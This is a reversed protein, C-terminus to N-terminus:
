EMLACDCADLYALFVLKFDPNRMTDVNIKLRNFCTEVKFDVRVDDSTNISISIPSKTYVYGTILIVLKKLENNSLDNLMSQIYKKMDSFDETVPPYTQISINKLVAVRDYELEGGLACYLDWMSMNRISDNNRLMGRVILTLIHHEEASIDCEIGLRNLVFDELSNYGTCLSTFQDANMRYILDLNCMYKHEAPDLHHHFPALQNIHVTQHICRYLCYIFSMSFHGSLHLSMNILHELLRGFYFANDKTTWFPHSINIAYRGNCVMLLETKVYEIINHLMSRKVGDGSAIVEDDLFLRMTFIASFNREVCATMYQSFVDQEVNIPLIYENYIRKHYSLNHSFNLVVEGESTIRYLLNHAFRFFALSSYHVELPNVFSYKYCVFLGWPLLDIEKVSEMPVPPAFDSTISSLTYWHNCYKFVFVSPYLHTDTILLPNLEVSDISLVCSKHDYMVIVNYHSIIIDLGKFHIIETISDIIEKCEIYGVNIFAAENKSANFWWLYNVGDLIYLNSNGSTKTMDYFWIKVIGACDIFIPSLNYELGELSDEDSDETTPSYKYFTEDILILHLTRVNYIRVFALNLPLRITTNCSDRFYQFDEDSSEIWSDRMKPNCIIRGNCYIDSTTRNTAMMHSYSNHISDFKAEIDYFVNNATVSYLHDTCLIFAVNTHTKIDVIEGQITGHYIRPTWVNMSSAPYLDYICVQNTHTLAVIHNSLFYCKQYFMDPIYNM